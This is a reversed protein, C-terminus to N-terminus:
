WRLRISRTDNKTSADRAGDKLAQDLLCDFSRKSVTSLSHHFLCTLNITLTLIGHFVMSELVLYAQVLRKNGPSALTALM